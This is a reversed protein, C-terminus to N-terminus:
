HLALCQLARWLARRITTGNCDPVARRERVGGRSPSREQRDKCSSDSSCAAVAVAVTEAGRRGDRGAAAGGAGGRRGGEEAAVPQAM